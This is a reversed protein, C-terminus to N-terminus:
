FRLSNELSILCVHTGIAFKIVDFQSKLRMAEAQDAEKRICVPKQTIVGYVVEPTSGSWRAIEESIRSARQPDTCKRILVKYKM